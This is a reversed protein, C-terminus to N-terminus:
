RDAFFDYKVNNGACDEGIVQDPCVSATCSDTGHPAPSMLRIATTEIDHPRRCDYPRYFGNATCLGTAGFLRPMNRSEPSRPRAEPSESRQPRCSHESQGTRGIMILCAPGDGCSGDGPSM